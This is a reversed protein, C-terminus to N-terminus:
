VQCCNAISQEHHLVKKKPCLTLINICGLFRIKGKDRQFSWLDGDITKYAVLFGMNGGKGRTLTINISWTFFVCWSACLNLFHTFLQPFFYPRYVVDCIYPGVIYHTWIKNNQGALSCLWVHIVTDVKFVCTKCSKHCCHFILVTRKLRKRAEEWWVRKLACVLVYAM